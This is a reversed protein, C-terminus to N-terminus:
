SKALHDPIGDQEGLLEMGARRQNGAKHGPNDFGIDLGAAPGEVDIEVVEGIAVAAENIGKIGVDGQGLKRMHEWM